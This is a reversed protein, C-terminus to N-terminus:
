KNGRLKKIDEKLEEIQVQQEKVAEVLVATLKGYDVSKYMTDSNLDKSEQVVEPIIKEIEQAIVGIDHKGDRKEKWDFEVGRLQLVEGLGYPIDNINKKLRIDSSTTTSAAIVDGNAHFDGSSAMLFLSDGDDRFEWNMAGRNGFFRMTGTGSNDYYGIGANEYTNSGPTNSGGMFSINPSYDSGGHDIYMVGTFNSTGNVELDASPSGTKIGISESVILSGSLVKTNGDFDLVLRDPMYASTVNGGEPAGGLAIRSTVGSTANGVFTIYGSTRGSNPQRPNNDDYTLNHTIGSSLADGTTNLALGAEAEAHTNTIRVATDMDTYTGNQVEIDLVGRGSTTSGSIQMGYDDIQVRKTGSRGGTLFEIKSTSSGGYLTLKHAEAGVALGGGSDDYIRQDNAFQFRTPQGIHIAGTSGEIRMPTEINGGDNISFKIDKDQASQSIHLEGTINDIITNTGNHRVSWDDSAGVWLRYDDRQVKLGYSGIKLREVADGYIKTESAEIEIIDDDNTGRRLKLNTSADDSQFIGTSSNYDAGEIDAYGDGSQIFRFVDSNVQIRAIGGRNGLMFDDNSGVKGGVFVQGFSGTSTISGSISGVVEIGDAVSNNLKLQAGSTNNARLTLTSDSDIVFGSNYQAFARVTNDSEMWGFLPANNSGQVYATNNASKLKVQDSHNIDGITLVDSGNQNMITASNGAADRQVYGYNNGVIIRGAPIDIKQAPTGSDGILLSGTEIKVGGGSKIETYASSGTSANLFIVASGTTNGGSHSKDQHWLRFETTSNGQVTMMPVRGGAASGRTFYHRGYYRLMNYELKDLADDAYFRVLPNTPSDIMRGLQLVVVNDTSGGQNGTSWLDSGSVLLRSQPVIVKNNAEDLQLLNDSGVIFDLRDDIGESIYTHSGGDFYLKDTAALAVDTFFSAFDNIENLRFMEAGGVFFRLRDDIDESIYTHSGGGFYLRSSVPIVINNNFIATGADSGDLQIANIGSGGDNLSFYIDGDSTYNRFVAHDGTVYLALDSDAGMYFIGGDGVDKKIRTTVDININKTSGDLTLYPTSGGSGDDSQLIIDKDNADNTIYFDGTSNTLFSNSGNHRMYFDLDNGAGLYHGDGVAVYNTGGEVLQLLRTGGVYIAINDAGEETIYTHGETDAGDLLLKKGSNMRIDGSASIVFNPNQTTLDGSIGTNAFVFDGHSQSVYMTASYSGGTNLWALGTDDGNNNKELVILGRENSDQRGLRLGYTFSVSGSVELKRTQHQGAIKLYGLSGSGLRSSSVMSGSAGGKLFVGNSPGGVRFTSEASGDDGMYMKPSLTADPSFRIMKSVDTPTGSDYTAFYLHGGNGAMLYNVTGNLQSRFMILPNLATSPDSPRIQMPASGTPAQVELRAGINGETAGIGVNGTSGQLFMDDNLNIDVDGGDGLKVVDQSAETLDLLVEGGAAFRIRDNTFQVYTDTDGQHEILHLVNLDGNDDIILPNSSNAGLKLQANPEDAIFWNRYTTGDYSYIFLSQNDDRHSISYKTHTADTASKSLTIGGESGDASKIDMYSAIDVNINRSSGDLTLYATEGGSGDDTKFIIDSDDARNQFILHGTYNDAGFSNSGNHYIQLDDNNGIALGTNPSDAINISSSVELSGTFRHVDDISDGFTTSGSSTAIIQNVFETRFEKAIISGSTSINGSVHLSGTVGVDGAVLLKEDGTNGRAAGITAHNKGADLYFLNEDDAGEFRFNIDLSDENFVTASGGPALKIIEQNNVFFEMRGDGVVQIRNYNDTSSNDGISIAATGDTSKFRAATEFPSQVTLPYWGVQGDITLGFRDTTITTGDEESEIRLAGFSATSAVSSSVDGAFISNGDENVRFLETGGTALDTNNRVIFARDTQNGDYDINVSVVSKAGLVLSDNSLIKSHGTPNVLRIDGFSGTSTISGSVLTSTLITKSM